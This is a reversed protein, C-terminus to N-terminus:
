IVWKYGLFDLIRWLVKMVGACTYDGSFLFAMLLDIINISDVGYKGRQVYQRVTEAAMRVKKGDMM